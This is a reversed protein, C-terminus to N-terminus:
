VRCGHWICGHHLNPSRLDAPELSVAYLYKQTMGTLLSFKCSLKLKRCITAEPCDHASFLMM